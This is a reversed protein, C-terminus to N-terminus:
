DSDYFYGADEGLIGCLAAYMDFDDDYNFDFNDLDHAVDYEDFDYGYGYGYDEDDDYDDDDDDSPHCIDYMTYTENPLLFVPHNNYEREYKFKEQVLNGDNCQKIKGKEKKLCSIKVTRTSGHGEAKFTVRSDVNNIIGYNRSLPNDSFRVANSGVNRYPFSKDATTSVFLSDPILGNLVVNIKSIKDNITIGFLPTRLGDNMVCYRYDTILIVLHTLTSPLNDWYPDKAKLNPQEGYKLILESLRHTDKFDLYKLVNIPCSFSKTNKPLIYKGTQYTQNIKVDLEISEVSESITNFSYSDIQGKFQFSKVHVQNFDFKEITPCHIHLDGVDMTPQYGKLLQLYKIDLHAIKFKKIVDFIEQTVTGSLGDISFASKPHNYYKALQPNLIRSASGSYSLSVEDVHNVLELLPDIYSYDNLSEKVREADSEDDSDEESDYSSGDDDDISVSIEKLSKFEQRNNSINKLYFPYPEVTISTIKDAYKSLWSSSLDRFSNLNVHKAYPILDCWNGSPTDWAASLEHIGLTRICPLLHKLEAPSLPVSTQIYESIIIVGSTDFPTAM